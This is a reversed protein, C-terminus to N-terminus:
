RQAPANAPEKVIDFTVETGRSVVDYVPSFRACEALQEETGDSQVHFTLHISQYGKRVDPSIGMFGRIDLDGQIESEIKQVEIGRAAAHYVMSTTMCSALAHLLHEVPNAAEGNSLLVPPEDAHEVFRTPHQHEEGVGYFSTFTTHNLGGHEWQNNAHFRFQAQDPQKKLTKATEGLKAVDIGNVIHQQDSM